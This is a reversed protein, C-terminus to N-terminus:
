SVRSTCNPSARRGRRPPPGDIAVCCVERIAPLKGEELLAQLARLQLESDDQAQRRIDRRATALQLTRVAGAAAAFRCDNKTGNASRLWLFPKSM